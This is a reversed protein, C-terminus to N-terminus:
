EEKIKFETTGYESKHIFKDGDKFLEFNFGSLNFKPTSLMRNEGKGYPNCYFKNTEFEKVKDGKVNTWKYIVAKHYLAYRFKNLSIKEM